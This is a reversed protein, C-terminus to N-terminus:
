KKLTLPTFKKNYSISAIKRATNQLNEKNLDKELCSLLGTACNTTLLGRILLEKDENDSFIIKIANEFSRPCSLRFNFGEGISELIPIEGNTIKHTFNNIFIPNFELYKKTIFDCFNKINVKSEIISFRNMMPISVGDGGGWEPPNAAACIEVNNPINFLEPNTILTLLTDSVERRSKDIEDLFLCIKEHKISEKQLRQIFPPITRKEFEEERYPLGEIDEETKSSLLLVEVYPYKSKIIETKGIGPAGIYMIPINKM